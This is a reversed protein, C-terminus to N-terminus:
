PVGEADDGGGNIELLELAPAGVGRIQGMTCQRPAKDPRMRLLRTGHRFRDQSVHDFSVEVVHKPAVPVWQASRATSWRSPGGPARGTFGVGGALRELAPTLQRRQADNLSATFGVHHLLGDDDYLGLLLSGVQRGRSQYRFGGIVCDATRLRKVKLMADREGPSYARGAHKAIVGDLGVHEAELWRRAIAPDCSQPSLHLRQAPGFFRRAFSELRRRRERLPLALLPGGRNSLLLDFAIFSAPTRAALREIRSAAPHIRQLLQDFTNVGDAEILLEGDLVFRSAGLGRAMAVVEPFYRGLPKGAKSRLEVDDGERFLLCRFGDWKPEFCWDDGAPLAPVQRAEMPELSLPVPLKM